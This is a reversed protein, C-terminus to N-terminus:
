PFILERFFHVERTRAVLGEIRLAVSSSSAMVESPLEFASEFAALGTAASHQRESFATEFATRKFIRRNLHMIKLLNRRPTRQVCRTRTLFAFPLFRKIKPRVRSRGFLICAAESIILVLDGGPGRGRGLDLGLLTVTHRRSELVCM